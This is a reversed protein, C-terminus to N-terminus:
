KAGLVLTTMARKGNVNVTKFEELLKLGKSEILDEKLWKEDVVFRESGDSLSLVMNSEKSSLNLTHSSVTRIFIVGNDKRHHLLDMFMSKFHSRDRAFHLVANCIIFDFKEGGLELVGLEGVRVDFDANEIESMKERAVDVVEKVLDVAVIRNGLNLLPVCNRGKGCGVDLISQSKDFYGKQILDILYMDMKGLAGKLELVKDATISM